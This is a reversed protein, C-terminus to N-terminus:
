SYAGMFMDVQATEHVDWEPDIIILSDVGFTGLERAYKHSGGVFGKGDSEKFNKQRLIYIALHIRRM